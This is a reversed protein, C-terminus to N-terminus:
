SIYPYCSTTMSATNNQYNGQPVMIFESICNFNSGRRLAPQLWSIHNIHSVNVFYELHIYYYHHIDSPFVVDSLSQFRCKCLFRSVFFYPIQWFDLCVSWFNMWLEKCWYQQFKTLDFLIPFYCLSLLIINEISTIWSISYSPFFFYHTPFDQYSM